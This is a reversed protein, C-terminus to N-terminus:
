FANDRSGTDCVFAREGSRGIEGPGIRYLSTAVGSERYWQGDENNKRRASAARTAESVKGHERARESRSM